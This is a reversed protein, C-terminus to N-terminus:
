DRGTRIYALLGLDQLEQDVQEPDDSELSTTVIQQLLEAFKERARHLLQRVGTSTLPKNMVEKLRAAMDPSRMEPNDARFRLVTFFPQGTTRELESLAEWTKALLEERWSEQFLRELDSEAPAAPEPFKDPLVPHQRQRRKFHDAVQHSVVAKLFDRFRGKERCAGRLDGHLFRYAFEQFLDDAADADKLAGRLYRQVAGGYRELIEAQAAAAAEGEGHQARKLLTWRTSIMDLRAPERSDSM